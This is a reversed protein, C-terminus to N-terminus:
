KLLVMRKVAAFTGAELRYYYIGNPLHGADFRVQHRGASLLAADIPTAVKQGLLNYITLTVRERGALSFSINTSPNFPNPFNQSLAFDVPGTQDDNVSTILGPLEVMDLFLVDGENATNAIHERFAVYIDSGSAVFDTLAYRYQVWQRSSDTAFPLVDVLVTFDSMSDRMTTSIKVDLTDVFSQQTTPFTFGFYKLYFKLSDGPQVNTLQPTILWQDNANGTSVQGDLDGTWFAALVVTKGGGPPADVTDPPPPFGLVTSGVPTATWGFPAGTHAMKKWGPPPFTTGEFSEITNNQAALGAFTVAVFLMTLYTKM